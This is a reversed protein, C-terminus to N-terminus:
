TVNTPLDYFGCLLLAIQDKYFPWSHYENCIHDDSFRTALRTYLRATAATAAGSPELRPGAMNCMENIACTPNCVENEGSWEAGMHIYMRLFRM